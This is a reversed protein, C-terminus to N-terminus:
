QAQAPDVLKTRKGLEYKEWLADGMAIVTGQHRLVIVPVTDADRTGFMDHYDDMFVAARGLTLGDAVDPSDFVARHPAARVRPRGPTTSTPRRRRAVLFAGAASMGAAALPSACAAGAVVAAAAGTIRVLFDRRPTSTSDHPVSVFASPPAPRRVGVRASRESVSSTM